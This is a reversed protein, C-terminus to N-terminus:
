GSFRQKWLWAKPTALGNYIIVNCKDPTGKEAGWTILTLMETALLQQNLSDRLEAHKMRSYVIPRCGGRETKCIVSRTAVTM